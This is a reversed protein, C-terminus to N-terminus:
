YSTTLIPQVLTLPQIEYFHLAYYNDYEIYEVSKRWWSYM